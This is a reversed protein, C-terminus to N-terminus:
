LPAVPHFALRGGAVDLRRIAGRQLLGARNAIAAGVVVAHAGDGAPVRHHVLVVVHDALPVLEDGSSAAALRAAGAPAALGADGCISTSWDIVCCRLDIAHSWAAGIISTKPNNKRSGSTRTIM